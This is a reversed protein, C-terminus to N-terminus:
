FPLTYVNRFKKVIRQGNTRQNLFSLWIWNKDEKELRCDQMELFGVVNSPLKGTNLISTLTESYTNEKQRIEQIHKTKQMNETAVAIDKFESPVGPQVYDLTYGLRIYYFVGDREVFASSKTLNTNENNKIFLVGIPIWSLILIWFLFMEGLFISIMFPITWLMIIIGFMLNPHNEFIRHRKIDKKMYVHDKENCVYQM